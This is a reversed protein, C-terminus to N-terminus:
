EAMHLIRTTQSRVGPKHAPKSGRLPSCDTARGAIASSDQQRHVMSGLKM